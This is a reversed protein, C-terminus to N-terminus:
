LEGKKHLNIRAETNLARQQAQEEIVDAIDALAIHHRDAYSKWQKVRVENQDELQLGLKNVYYRPLAMKAGHLRFGFNARLNEAEALCFIFRTKSLM